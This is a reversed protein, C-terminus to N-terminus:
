STAKLDVSNLRGQTLPLVPLYVKKTNLQAIALWQGAVQNFQKVDGTVCFQVQATATDPAADGLLYLERMAAQAVHEAPNICRVQPPLHPEIIPALHPYHTCGYILTNIEQDLLPVLYKTVIAPTEPDRLRNAEILPVFEPCGIQWVQAHPNIELIARRYADSRVTAPTAIVGVRDGGQQVAGQAGPLILGLIPLQFETRVVDLALASSTNCAMVVMKAQNDVFWTMIERVFQLIEAPTRTGYPVRATDGLYLFSEAPLYRQLAQLVTLGGVGSDFVGIWGNQKNQM